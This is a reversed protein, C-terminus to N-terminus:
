KLAFSIHQSLALSDEKPRLGQYPHQLAIKPAVKGDLQGTLVGVAHLNGPGSCKEGIGWLQFKPHLEFGVLQGLSSLNKLTWFLRGPCKQLLLLNEANVGRQDM